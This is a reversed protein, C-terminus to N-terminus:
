VVSGYLDVTQTVVRDLSFEAEVRARGEAGMRERLQRDALLRRLAAALAHSDRAPVLLGNEENRVIERCGPVDTTVIPRAAAAAEILAKPLGERYSPLSVIASQAFVEHIDRRFGWWEVDGADVWAKVEAATVSAPNGPDTDGVLAFRASGRLLRAAEVFECVGKDRLLRAPLVVLPIGDPEPQPVFRRIDAGSGKIMVVKPPTVLKREIFQDRDDPNQFIVHGKAHGLSVRYAVEVAHRRLQSRLGSAIFMYGLGSIANVVTPVGALRAAIGGYLNPKHTVLHVVDPRLRRFLRYLAAISWAEEIPQFSRRNLPIEHFTLGHSRITAVAQGDPTAVEVRHGRRRAELAVPLRHSVFFAPDNVVFLVFAM